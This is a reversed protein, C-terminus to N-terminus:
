DERLVRRDEAHGLDAYGPETMAPDDELDDRAERTVSPGRFDKAPDGTTTTQALGDPSVRDDGAPPPIGPTGSQSTEESASAVPEAPEEPDAGASEADVADAEEAEAPQADDDTTAPREDQM